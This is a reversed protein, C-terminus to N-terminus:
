RPSIATPMRPSHLSIRIHLRQGLPIAPQRTLGAPLHAPAGIPDAFILGCHDLIKQFEAAAEPGQHLDLYTEGRVYDSDLCGFFAFFTLGPVAFEYPSNTQLRNWRRALTPRSRHSFDVCRRCTTSSCPCTKPFACKRWAEPGCACVRCGGGPTTRIYEGADVGELAPSITFIPTKKNTRSRTGISKVSIDKCADACDAGAATGDLGGLTAAGDLPVWLAWFLGSVLM